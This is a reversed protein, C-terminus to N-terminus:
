INESLQLGKEKIFDRVKRAIEELLKNAITGSLQCTHIVLKDPGYHLSYWHRAKEMKDGDKLEFTGENRVEFTGEYQVNFTKELFVEFKNGAYDGAAAIVIPFHQFFATTRFFEDRKKVSPRRLHNKQGANSKSPNQNYETLFAFEQFNTEKTHPVERIFDMLKQYKNWTHGEKHSSNKYLYLPNKWDLTDAQSSNNRVNEKWKAINSHIEETVQEPNESGDIALEQGIILISANPNGTGAYLDEAEAKELMKIFEKTYNMNRLKYTM